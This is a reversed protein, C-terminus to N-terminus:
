ILSKSYSIYSMKKENTVNTSAVIFKKLEETMEIHIWLQSSMNFTISMSCGEVKNTKWGVQEGNKKSITPEWTYSSPNLLAYNSPILLWDYNIKKDLEERVIISYFDFNKRNNIEKIFDEKTGCNKNNCVTTLRYSSIDFSKKNKSYKSSKNSIGGLESNIDMGPNHGGDSKSYIEIGSELFIDVNADEWNTEKIPRPSNFTHYGQVYLKFEEDLKGKKEFMRMEQTTMKRNQKVLKIM